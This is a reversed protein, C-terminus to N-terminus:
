RIVNADAANKILKMDRVNNEEGNKIKEIEQFLSSSVDIVTQHSQSVSSKMEDIQEQRKKIEKEFFGLAEPSSSPSDLLLINFTELMEDICMGAQQKDDPTAKRFSIQHCPALTSDLIRNPHKTHIIEPLKKSVNPCTYLRIKRLLHCSETLSVIGEETIESFGDLKLRQLLRLCTGVKKLTDNSISPQGLLM